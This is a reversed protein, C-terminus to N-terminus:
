FLNMQPAGFAAGELLLLKEKRGIGGGFGTLSRDAGIVRHCPVIVPIPNRGCAGGVARALSIGGLEKALQGYTRTKGFPIKLLLQWLECDFDTGRLDLELAFRQRKGKFYETLQSSAQRLHEHAAGRARSAPRPTAPARDLFRVGTLGEESATLLLAGIPTRNMHCSLQTGTNM